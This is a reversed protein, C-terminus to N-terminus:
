LVYGPVAYSRSPHHIHVVILWAVYLRVTTAPMVSFNLGAYADETVKGGRGMIRGGTTGVIVPM